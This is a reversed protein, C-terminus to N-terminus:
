KYNYDGYFKIIRNKNKPSKNDKKVSSRIKYNLGYQTRADSVNAKISLIQPM